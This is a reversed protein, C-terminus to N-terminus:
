IMVGKWIMESSDHQVAIIKKNRMMPTRRGARTTMREPM